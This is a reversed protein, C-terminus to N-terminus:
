RPAPRLVALSQAQARRLEGTDIHRASAVRPRPDTTQALVGAACAGSSCELIQVAPDARGQAHPHELSPAAQAKALASAVVLIVFGTRRLMSLAQDIRM